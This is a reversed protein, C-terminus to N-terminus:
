FSAPASLQLAERAAERKAAELTWMWKLDREVEEKRVRQRRENLYSWDEGVGIDAAAVRP